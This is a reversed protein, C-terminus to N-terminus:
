EEKLNDLIFNLFKTLLLTFAIMACITFISIIIMFAFFHNYFFQEFM